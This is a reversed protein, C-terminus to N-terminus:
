GMLEGTGWLETGVLMCSGRLYTRGKSKSGKNGSDM